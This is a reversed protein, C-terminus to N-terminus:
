RVVEALESTLLRAQITTRTLPIRIKVINGVVGTGQLEGITEVCLGGHRLQLKVQTGSRLSTSCTSSHSLVPTASSHTDTPSGPNPSASVCIRSSGTIDITALNLGLRRLRSRLYGSTLIRKEGPAPAAGIELKEAKAIAEAPQLTAIDSLFITAGSVTCAEHLEISKLNSEARVHVALFLMLICIQLRM